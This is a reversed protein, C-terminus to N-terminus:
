FHRLYKKCKACKLSNVKEEINDTNIDDILEIKDTVRYKAEFCVERVGEVIFENGGCYKCKSPFKLENIM